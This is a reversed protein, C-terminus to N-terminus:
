HKRQETADASIEQLLRGASQRANNSGIEDVVAEDSLASLRKLRARREALGSTEKRQIAKAKPVTREVAPQAAYRHTGALPMESLDMTWDADGLRPRLDLHLLEKTSSAHAAAWVRKAMASNLTDATMVPRYQTILNGPKIDLSLDTAILYRLDLAAEAVAKSLEPMGTAKRCRDILHVSRDLKMSGQPYPGHGVVLLTTYLEMTRRFHDSFRMERPPRSPTWGSYIPPALVTEPRQLAFSCFVRHGCEIEGFTLVQDSLLRTLLVNLVIHANKSLTSKGLGARGHLFLRISNIAAARGRDSRTQQLDVGYHQGLECSAPANSPINRSKPKSLFQMDACGAM